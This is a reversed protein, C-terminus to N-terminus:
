WGYIWESPILMTYPATAIALILSLRKVQQPDLETRRFSLWRNLWYILVGALFIGPLVLLQAGPIFYVAEVFADSLQGPLLIGGLMTLGFTLGAGALDAAFGIIWVKLIASKWVAWKGTYHLAAMAIVLVLSDIVFNGPLVYLWAAPFLLLAWLPFLVNYLRIERKM